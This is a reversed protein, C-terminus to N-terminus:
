LDHDYALLTAETIRERDGHEFPKYDDGLSEFRRAVAVAHAKRGHWDDQV